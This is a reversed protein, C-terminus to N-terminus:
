VTNMINFKMTKFKIKELANESKIMKIYNLVYKQFDGKEHM